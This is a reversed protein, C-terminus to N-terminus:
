IIKVFQSMNVHDLDLVKTKNLIPLQMECKYCKIELIKRPHQVCIM